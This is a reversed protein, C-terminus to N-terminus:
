LFGKKKLYSSAKKSLTLSENDIMWKIQDLPFIWDINIVSIDAKLNFDIETDKVKVKLNEYLKEVLVGLNSYKYNGYYDYDEHNTGNQSFSKIPTRWMPGYWHEVLLESYKPVKVLHERILKEDLEDIFRSPFVTNPWFYISHLPDYRRMFGDKCKFYIYIDGVDQKDFQIKYSVRWHKEISKPQSFSHLAGFAEEFRYNSKEIIKNLELVREKDEYYIGIDFDYDHSIINSERICGLLTGYMVWHKIDADKLLNTIFVLHQYISDSSPFLNETKHNIVNEELDNM